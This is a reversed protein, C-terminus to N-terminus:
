RKKGMLEIKRDALTIGDDVYPSVSVMDDPENELYRANNVLGVGAFKKIIDVSEPAKLNIERWNELKEQRARDRLLDIRNTLTNSDSPQDM